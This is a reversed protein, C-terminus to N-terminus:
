TLDVVVRGSVRGALLDHACTIASELPVAKAMTGIVEASLDHALRQWVADRRAQPYSVSDIGALTVGRLIFPAVTALFDMGQALGCAAVTGGYRTSACANSLTHSGVSDVVGAWREKALPKGPQSFLERALIETAGLRRLREAESGRGTVAAVKYGLRALLAVAFGGVGGGAGTVLVEGQDPAVGHAELALVALMATFGATGISMATRTDMGAPLRVLKAADVRAKQSLGGFANEGYGWGTLVVKDGAKWQESTCSEVTGAMDIGPVMPFKRVVPSRGTIALADKYNLSSWEVRVLTGAQPLASEDIQKVTAQTEGASRELWITNFLM